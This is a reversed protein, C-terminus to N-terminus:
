SATLSLTTEHPREQHVLVAVQVQRGLQGVVGVVDDEVELEPGHEFRHRGAVPQHEPNGPSGEQEAELVRLGDSIALPDEGVAQLPGVDHPADVPHRDVRHLGLSLDPSGEGRRRVRDEMTRGLHHLDEYADEPLQPLHSVLAPRPKGRGAERAEERHEFVLEVIGVELRDFGVKPLELELLSHEDASSDPLPVGPGAVHEPAGLLAPENRPDGATPPRAVAELDGRTVLGAHLREAFKPRSADVEDGVRERLGDVVDPVEERQEGVLEGEVDAAEVEVFSDGPLSLRHAHGGWPDGPAPRQVRGPEVVCREAQVEGTSGDPVLEPRVALSEHHDGPGVLAALRREHSCDSLRLEHHLGSHENGGLGEPGLDDSPDERVVLPLFVRAHLVALQLLLEAPHSPDDLLDRGAAEEQAVFREGGRVLALSRLDAPLDKARHGVRSHLHHEYGM